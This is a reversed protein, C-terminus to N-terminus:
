RRHPGRAGPPRAGAPHADHHVDLTTTNWLIFFLNEQWNAPLPTPPPHFGEDAATLTM